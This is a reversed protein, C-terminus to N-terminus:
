CINDEEEYQECVRNLIASAYALTCNEFEKLDCSKCDNKSCYNNYGELLAEYTTM